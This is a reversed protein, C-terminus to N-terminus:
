VKFQSVLKDLGNTISKLQIVTTTNEIIGSETHGSIQAIREINQHLELVVNSQASSAEAIQTNMTDITVIQELILDLSAEASQGQEVTKIGSHQSKGMVDVALETGKELRDIMLKIEDTSKRTKTALTRVEDAVVAFGRGNEGARAAEIAANLALLNTQDAINEIVGVMAVIESVDEKLNTIVGVGQEIEDALETIRMNTTKLVSRVNEAEDNSAKAAIAADSAYDSVESSTAHLQHM